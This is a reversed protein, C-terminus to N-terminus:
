PFMMEPFVAVLSAIRHVDPQFFFTGSRPVGSQLAGLHGVQLKVNAEEAIKMLERAEELSTVIPKEIFVHCHKRLAKSACEFHSGARHSLISWM